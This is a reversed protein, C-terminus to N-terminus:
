RVKISGAVGKSKEDAPTEKFILSQPGKDGADPFGWRNRSEKTRQVSETQTGQCKHIVTHNEVSSSGGAALVM